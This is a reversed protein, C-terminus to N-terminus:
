DRITNRNTKNIKNENKTPKKSVIKKENSEPKLTTDSTDHTTIESIKTTDYNINSTDNIDTACVASMTIFISLLTMLFLICIKKSNKM